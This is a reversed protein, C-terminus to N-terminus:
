RPFPRVMARKYLTLYADVMRRRDYHALALERGLRGMETAHGRNGELSALAARLADEDGSPVLIGAGSNALVGPIGGVATAIVPLASAMAELLVLPLGESRSSIVFVDLAALLQPIDGRMGPMHVFPAGAFGAVLLRLAPGEAGDGVLLVRWMEGLLPAAARLFLDFNKEGALRGVSGVVWADEPIGLARRIDRRADPDAHFPATDIGNEIIVVDRRGREHLRRAVAATDASVAVYSDVLGAALRRLLRRHFTGIMQGHRTHVAAARSLRAAPAAYLLPLHNHSHVVDIERHRFLAALRLLLSVDFGSGKAVRVADVGRARFEDGLPGDPAPALSVATVQHGLAVQGAALDRAMKEQGGVEFSSLVHAIKM